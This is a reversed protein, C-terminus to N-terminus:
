DKRLVVLEELITAGGHPIKLMAKQFIVFARCIGHPILPSPISPAM